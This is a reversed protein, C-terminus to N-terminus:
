NDDQLFVIINLNKRPRGRSRKVLVLEDTLEKGILKVKISENITLTLYLKVFAACFTTNSYPLGLVCSERNVSV